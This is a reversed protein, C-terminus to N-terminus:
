WRRYTCRKDGLSNTPCTDLFMKGNERSIRPIWSELFQLLFGLSLSVVTLDFMQLVFLYRVWDISRMLWVDSTLGLIDPVNFTPNSQERRPRKWRVARRLHGIITRGSLLPVTNCVNDRWKYYLGFVVGDDEPQNSEDSIMHRNWFLTVCSTEVQGCIVNGEYLAYIKLMRM